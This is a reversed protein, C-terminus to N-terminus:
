ETSRWALGAPPRPRAAADQGPGRDAGMRAVRIPSTVDEIFVAETRQPNADHPTLGRRGGM